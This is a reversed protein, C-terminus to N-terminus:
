DKDVRRRDGTTDLRKASIPDEESTESEPYAPADKKWQRERCSEGGAHVRYQLCALSTIPAAFTEVTVKGKQGTSVACSPQGFLEAVVLSGANAGGSRGELV